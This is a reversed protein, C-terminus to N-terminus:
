RARFGNGVAFQFCKSISLKAISGGRRARANRNAYLEIAVM